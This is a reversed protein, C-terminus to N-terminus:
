HAAGFGCANQGRTSSARPSITGMSRSATRACWAGSSDLLWSGVVFVEFRSRRACRLRWSFGRAFQGTCTGRQYTRAPWVELRRGRSRRRRARLCSRRDRSGDEFGSGPERQVLRAEDDSLWPALRRRARWLGFGDQRWRPAISTIAAQILMMSTPLDNYEACRFDPIASRRRMCGADLCRGNGPAEEAEPLGLAWPAVCEAARHLESATPYFPALPLLDLRRM